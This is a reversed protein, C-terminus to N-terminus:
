TWSETAIIDTPRPVTTSQLRSKLKFELTKQTKKSGLAASDTLLRSYIVKSDTVVKSFMTEVHASGISKRRTEVASSIESFPLMIRIRINHDGVKVEM